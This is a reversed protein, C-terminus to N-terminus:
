QKEVVYSFLSWLSLQWLDFTVSSSKLLDNDIEDLIGYLESLPSLYPDLSPVTDLGLAHDNM